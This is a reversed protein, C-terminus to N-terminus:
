VVSKRDGSPGCDGQVQFVTAATWEDCKAFEDAMLALAGAVLVLAGAATAWRTSARRPGAGRRRQRRLGYAVALPVCALALLDTPDRTLRGGGGAGLWAMARTFAAGAADSMEVASFLGAAIAAGIWLRRRLSWDALMGLAASVLLPILFCIAVDSLKGTIANHFARKLVHDNLLLLAVAALPLGGGLEALAARARRRSVDPVAKWGTM